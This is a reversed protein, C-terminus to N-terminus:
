QSYQWSRSYRWHVPSFNSIRARWNSKQCKWSIKVKEVRTRPKRASCERRRRFNRSNETASLRARSPFQPVCEAFQQNKKWSRKWQISKQREKFTISINQLRIWTNLTKFLSWKSNRKIGTSLGLHLILLFSKLTPPAGFKRSNNCQLVWITFELTKRTLMSM